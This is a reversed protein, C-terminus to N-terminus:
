ARHRLAAHEPCLDLGGASSWGEATALVRAAGLADLDLTESEGDIRVLEDVYAVCDPNDCSIREVLQVTTVAM